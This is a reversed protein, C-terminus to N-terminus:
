CPGNSSALKQMAPETLRFLRWENMQAAGLQEYFEIAPRNWDLAVWEMRGCKREVALRVLELLLRKGIGKGRFEPRVYLDELYLGRRGLFTSFNHFFLAFGAPEGNWEALLVELRPQNGELAVRLDSETATLEHELKEYAAIGRIFDYVLRADAPTATRLVLHSEPM